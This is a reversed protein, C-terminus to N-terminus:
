SREDDYFFFAAPATEGVPDLQRRARNGTRRRSAILTARSPRPRRPRRLRGRAGGRLPRGARGALAAAALGLRGVGHGDPKKKGVDDTLFWTRLRCFSRALLVVQLLFKSPSKFHCYPQGCHLNPRNFGYVAVMCGEFAYRM